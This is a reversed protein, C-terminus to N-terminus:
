LNFKNTVATTAGLLDQYLDISGGTAEDLYCTFSGSVTRTGVVHGLPVNVVGLVEPTLFSINNGITVSGGTLTINYTKAISTPAIGQLTLATLRNRIMNNTTNVGNTILTYVGTNTFNIADVETILKGMGSWAITAIGDIEFNM